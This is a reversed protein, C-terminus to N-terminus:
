HLAASATSIILRILNMTHQDSPMADHGVGNTMLINGPSTQKARISAPFEINIGGAGDLMPSTEPKIWKDPTTRISIYLIKRTNDSPITKVGASDRGLGYPTEDIDAVHPKGNLLYQILSEKPNEAFAPCLDDAGVGKWGCLVNSGHNAGGFALWIRVREPHIRATYWRSSLAGMSKSFLDIKKKPPVSSHRKRILANVIKIHEEVALAIQNEAADINSGTNPHLQIAKLYEQPHGSRILDKILPKWCNANSGYGHIFVIPTKGYDPLTDYINQCGLSWVSCLLPLISILHKM